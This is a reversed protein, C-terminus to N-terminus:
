YINNGFIYPYYYIPMRTDAFETKGNRIFVTQISGCASHPYSKKGVICIESIDFSKVICLKRMKQVDAGTKLTPGCTWQEIIFPTLVFVM